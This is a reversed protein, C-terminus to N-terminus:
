TAKEPKRSILSKKTSKKIQNTKKYIKVFYKKVAGAHPNTLMQLWMLWQVHAKMTLRGSARPTQNSPYHRKSCLTEKVPVFRRTLVQKLRKQYLQVLDNHMWTQDLKSKLLVGISSVKVEVLLMSKWTTNKLPPPPNGRNFHTNLMIGMYPLSLMEHWDKHSVAM